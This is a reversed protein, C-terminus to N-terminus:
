WNDSGHGVFLCWKNSNVEPEEASMIACGTHVSICHFHYTITISADNENLKIVRVDVRVRVCVCKVLEKEKLLVGM